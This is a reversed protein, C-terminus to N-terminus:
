GLQQFRQLYLCVILKLSSRLSEYGFTTSASFDSPFSESFRGIVEAVFYVGNIAWEADGGSSFALQRWRIVTSPTQADLPLPIQLRSPWRGTLYM